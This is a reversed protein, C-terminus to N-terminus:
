VLYILLFLILQILDVVVVILTAQIQERFLFRHLLAVRRFVLKCISLSQEGLSSLIENLLLDFNLFHLFWECISLLVVSSQAVLQTVSARVECLRSFVQDVATWGM